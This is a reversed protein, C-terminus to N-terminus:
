DSQNFDNEIGYKTTIREIKKGIPKALIMLFIVNSVAYTVTTPFATVVFAFYRNIDFVSYTWLLSYVDMLLSYLVGFLAGFACLFIKKQKLNKSFLASILGIIGWALMQFPTWPGQGFYFNSILATFAGCLFGAEKGLYVGTIVVMAAVPKFHPIFEFIIRSVVSLSVMAATIVLLKLDKTKNELSILFACLSLVCVAISSLVYSSKKMMVSAFIVIFPIILFIFYILFKKRNHNNKM